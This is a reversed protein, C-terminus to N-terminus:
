ARRAGWWRPSFTHRGPLTRSVVPFLVGAVRPQFGLAMLIRRFAIVPRQYFIPTSEGNHYNRSHARPSGVREIFANGPLTRRRNHSLGAPPPVVAVVENIISHTTKATIWNEVIWLLFLIVNQHIVARKVCCLLADGPSPSM